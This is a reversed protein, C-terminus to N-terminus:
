RTVPDSGGLLRLDGTRPMSEWDGPGMCAFAGATAALELCEAIPAGDLRRRLFGAVFADGAGVTDVVPVTLADQRTVTGETFALSGAAGRKIVALAPGHEVLARALAEPDAPSLGTLLAAEDDGAFVIDSEAALERYVVSADGVPWLSPRHNVDFSVPVGAARAVAVVQRVLERASDSLSATIGTVHLLSAGRVLDADIDGPALRSGASDARYFSVRTTHPTRREKIMLGTRATPDVIARVDVGEGRLEKVVRRGLGDDGVRGVWVAPAGLRSVGIAVNSDAGGIGIRADSVDALDGVEAARFLGMTEGFTLVYGTM